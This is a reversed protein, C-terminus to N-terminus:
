NMSANGVINIIGMLEYKMLEKGSNLSKREIEDGYYSM